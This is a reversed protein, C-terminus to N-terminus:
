IFNALAWAAAAIGLTAAFAVAFTVAITGLIQKM